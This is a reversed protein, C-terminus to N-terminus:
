TIPGIVPHAQKGRESAQDARIIHAPMPAFINEIGITRRLRRLTNTRLRTAKLQLAHVQLLQDELERHTSREYDADRPPIATRLTRAIEMDSALTTRWVDHAGSRVLGMASLVAARSRRSQELLEPLEIITTEVDALQKRLELRLDLAKIQQSRRYSVYGLVAGLIGTAAGIVGTVAGILGLTQADPM